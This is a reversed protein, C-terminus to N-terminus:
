VGPPLKHGKAIAKQKLEEVRKAVEDDVVKELHMYFDLGMAYPITRFFGPSGKFLEEGGIKWTFEGLKALETGLAEISLSLAQIADAGRVQKVTESGNRAIRYAGAWSRQDASSPAEPAAISVEFDGDESGLTRTAIWQQAM